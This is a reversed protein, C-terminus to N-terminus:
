VVFNLFVFMDDNSDFSGNFDMLEIYVGVDGTRKVLVVIAHTIFSGAGKM